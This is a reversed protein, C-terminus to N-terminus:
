FVGGGSKNVMNNAGLDRINVGCGQFEIKGSNNNSDADLYLGIDKADSNTMNIADNFVSNVVGDCYIGYQNQTHDTNNILIVNARLVVSDCNELKIGTLKGAATEIFHIKNDFVINNDSNSIISIGTASIANTGFDGFITNGSTTIHQGFGSIANTYTPNEIIDIKNGQIFNIINPDTSSAIAVIASGFCVIFKNNNIKYYDCYALINGAFSNFENGICELQGTYTLPTSIFYLPKMIAASANGNCVNHNFKLRGSGSGIALITDRGVANIRLSEITIDATHPSWLSGITILSIQYGLDVNQSEISFNRLVFTKDYPDSLSPNSIYLLRDNPANKMVVGGQSEGVIELNVNPIYLPATQQYVGNKLYMTGGNTQKLKNLAKQIDTFEADNYTPGVVVSYKSGWVNFCGRGVDEDAQPGSITPEWCYNTDDVPITVIAPSFGAWYDLNCSLKTWKLDVRLNANIKISDLILKSSMGPYYRDGVITLVDDPDYVMHKSKVSSSASGDKMLKRQYYLTGIKQAHVSNQVFPIELIESDIETRSGGGVAPVLLKLFKDQAEDVQQWAVYGCDSVRDMSTDDYRWTTYGGPQDKLIDASTLTAVSASSLVHLEVKEHVRLTSHCANLLKALVKERQEKYWFGGNFTLGWTDFTAASAAFSVNDINTSEVGFDILVKRIVWAFNTMTATDSRSFQVPTDSIVEGNRWLGGSDVNGAEESKAIIAQLGVYQDGFRDTLVSQEFTYGTSSWESKRGLERPSRVKTVNFTAASSYPGLIYYRRSQTLTIADGAAETVFGDDNDFELTGPCASLVLFTGNNTASTFGAVGLYRHAELPGFGRASDLLYCSARNVSGVVSITDGTATVSGSVFVSKLPIYVTGFPVPVCIDEQADVDSSPFCDKPYATNPYYGKLHKKLFDECVCRFEKTYGPVTTKIRLRWYRITRTNTADSFRLSILVTGGIFDLHSLAGDGNLVTFDLGNPAIIASESSTKVMEVGDFDAIKFEYPGALLEPHLYPEIVFGDFGTYSAEAYTRTSWRYSVGNKDTVDFLWAVQRKYSSNVIATQLSTLAIM